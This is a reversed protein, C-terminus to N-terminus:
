QRVIQLNANGYFTYALYTPDGTEYFRQRVDRLVEALYVPGTALGTSVESYFATSFDAAPRDALPWMGGIFGSAGTALVAPGWGQVFGGLSVAQGSDCANFFYFPNGAGPPAFRLARWTSPDLSQDTLRIAFVPRGNGPDNLEGHGSFHIFGSSVEGIMREFAGFDGGVERFGTLRRLAELEVKQFPLAQSGSYSPAVAAVGTFAMRNRPQDIQGFEARPAWRAVRYQIGLFGDSTAGEASFPRVLEWPLVPSNSTIQISRLVGRQRLSWFVEKFAKPVYNRYLEDGFGEAALKVFRRQTEPDAPEPRQLPKVGRLDLGLQVLRAYEAELWGSMGAPTSFEESIPGSLYPSHIVILGEGLNDPDQYHVTVDLDPVEIDSAEVALPTALVPEAMALTAPPATAEEVGATVTIPRSASGLFRGEHYFRAILRGPRAGDVPRARLEFRAFDSDGVRYLTIGRSWKGGDALDFGSALLDVDIPWEDATAPMAFEIAGDKNLKTTPAARATVDPTVVEETLAVTVTFTEEAAVRDPAELTPHRALTTEGSASAAPAPPTVAERAPGASPDLSALRLRALTALPSSPFADIYAEYLGSDRSESIVAWAQAESLDSLAAVTPDQPKAEPPAGVAVDSGTDPPRAPMPPEPAPPAGVSRDSEEGGPLIEIPPTPPEFDAPPAGGDTSPGSGPQAGGLALDPDISHPEEFDPVVEPAPEMVSRAENEMLSYDDPLSGSMWPRQTGGTAEGVRRRMLRIAEEVSLGPQASASAFADALVSTPGGGDSAVTGSESAFVVLTNEPPSVPALGDEVGAADSPSRVDLVVLKAADALSLSDLMGDLSMADRAYGDDSLPADVPLLRNEGRWQVAYGAFYVVGLGDAGSIELDLLFDRFARRLGTSDLDAALTVTYGADELSSAVLEAGRTASPLSPAHVYGGNGVVLAFREAAQATACFALCVFALVLRVVGM